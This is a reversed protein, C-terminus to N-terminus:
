DRCWDRWPESINLITLINLVIPRSKVPDTSTLSCDMVSDGTKLAAAVIQFMVQESTATIEIEPHSLLLQYSSVM